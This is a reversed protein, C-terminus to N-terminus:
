PVPDYGGPNFPQCRLVRWIALGGGRILGHKAIAQFGYHSCSPYFRCTNVPLLRSFTLQYGRIVVLVTLRPLNRWTRDISGLPPDLDALSNASDM